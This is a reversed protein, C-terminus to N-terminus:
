KAPPSELEPKPMVALGAAYAADQVREVTSPAYVKSRIFEGIALIIIMTPLIFGLIAQKQAEDVPLGFAALLALLATVFAGVISAWRAPEDQM